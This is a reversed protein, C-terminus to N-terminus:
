INIAKAPVLMNLSAPLLRIHFQDAEGCPEGDIHFSMPKNTKITFNKAEIVDCYISRDVKGSFFAYMFDLRFPPVKKLISLHLLGDCVSAAPAIRANNGYQSSNAIAMIFAKRELTQNELTISAEFEKFQFFEHITLKAYGTFGRKKDKGFLNAVHGDFGIGSVNLSLKDNLTFTDMAIVRSNFLNQLAGSLTLPIRLHRSLGNGSGKPLIGMPVPTHVLGQAVENVTGDGGVAIISTFKKEVGEQALETAHGRGRTFEITCEVDQKECAEIIKGEVGAQYGTGSFKNVIFLVQKGEINM